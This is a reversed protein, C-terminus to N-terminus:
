IADLAERLRQHELDNAALGFRLQSPHEPFPRVLIHREALHQHIAPADSHEVLVFLPNKGIIEFGNDNLLKSLEQSKIQLERRTRAIWGDDSLAKKGIALAPGSVAWPGILRSLSMVSTKSGIAFGLRVGALGFFKGFSKLVIANSPMQGVFSHQPAADCFAEDVILHGVRKSVDLLEKISHVTGTPNNPNVVVAVDTGEAVQELGGVRSVIAGHKQWVHEHEGYTPSVIAVDKGPFAMPLLEILAQTGSAAVISDQKRLQYYSSATALLDDEAGSDPLRTWLMRDIEPVPYACPNIGTSLDLWDERRGGFRIVAADLGGGHFIESM